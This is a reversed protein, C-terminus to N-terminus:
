WHRLPVEEGTIRRAIDLYDYVSLRQKYL